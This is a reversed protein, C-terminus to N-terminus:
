FSDSNTAIQVIIGSVIDRLSVLATIVKSLYKLIHFSQNFVWLVSVMKNALHGGGWVMNLDLVDKHGPGRSDM